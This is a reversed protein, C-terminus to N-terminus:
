STQLRASRGHSMSGIAIPAGLTGSHWDSSRWFTRAETKLSATLEMLLPQHPNASM